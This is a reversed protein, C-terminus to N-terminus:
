DPCPQSLRCFPSGSAGRFNEAVGAQLDIDLRGIRGIGFIGFPQRHRDAGICRRTARLMTM